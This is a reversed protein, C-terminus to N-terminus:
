SISAKMSVRVRSSSASAPIDRLYFGVFTPLARESPKDLRGQRLRRALLEGRTALEDIAEREDVVGRAGDRERRDQGRQHPSREARRGQVAEGGRDGAGALGLEDVQSGDDGGAVLGGDDLFAVFLLQGLTEAGGKEGAVLDDRDIVDLAAREAASHQALRQRLAIQVDAHEAAGLVAHDDGVGEDGRGAVIQAEGAVHGAAGHEAREVGAALAGLQALEAVIGDGAAREAPNRPCKNWLV